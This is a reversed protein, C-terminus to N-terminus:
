KQKLQLSIDEFQISLVKLWEDIIICLQYKIENFSPLSFWHILGHFIIRESPSKAVNAAQVCTWNPVCMWRRGLSTKCSEDLDGTVEISYILRLRVSNPVNWLMTLPLLDATIFPYGTRVWRKGLRHNLVLARLWKVLSYIAHSLMKSGLKFLTFLLSRDCCAYTVM